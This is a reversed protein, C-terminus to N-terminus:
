SSNSLRWCRLGAWGVLLAFVAQVLGFQWNGNPQFLVSLARLAFFASVVVLCFALIRLLVLRAKSGASNRGALKREFVRVLRNRDEDSVKSENQNSWEVSPVSPPSAQMTSIPPSQITAPIAQDEPVAARPMVETSPAPASREGSSRRVRDPDYPASLVAGDMLCFALTDDPYTRNCTPCSKM